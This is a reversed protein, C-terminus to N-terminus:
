PRRWPCRMTLLGFGVARHDCQILGPSTISKGRKQAHFRPQSLVTSDWIDPNPVPGRGLSFGGTPAQTGVHTHM